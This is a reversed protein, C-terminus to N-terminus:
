KDRPMLYEKQARMIFYGYLMIAGACLFMTANVVTSYYPVGVFARSVVGCIIFIGGFVFNLPVTCKIYGAPDPAKNIDLNKSMLANHVVSGTTKMKIATYIIYLGAFIEVYDLIADYDM